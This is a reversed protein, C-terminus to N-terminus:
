NRVEVAKYASLYPVPSHNMEGLRKFVVLILLTVFRFESGLVEHSDLCRSVATDDARQVHSCTVLKSAHPGANQICVSAMEMEQLSAQLLQLSFSYRCSLFPCAYWAGYGAGELGSEDPIRHKGRMTSSERVLLGLDQNAWGIRHPKGSVEHSGCKTKQAMLPLAPKRAESCRRPTERCVM